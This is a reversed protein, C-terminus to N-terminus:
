RARGARGELQDRRVEFEACWSPRDDGIARSPPRCAASTRRAKSRAVISSKVETLGLVQLDCFAVLHHDAEGVALFDRQEGVDAQVDVERRVRRLLLARGPVRGRAREAVAEASARQELLRQRVAAVARLVVLPQLEEAVAHEAAGDGVLEVRAERDARLCSVRRRALRTRSSASASTPARARAARAAARRPSRVGTCATSGPRRARPATRRRTGRRRSRPPARAHPAPTRRRARRARGPAPRRLVGLGLQLFAAPARGAAARTGRRRSARRPAGASTRPRIRPQRARAQLAVPLPVDRWRASCCAACAISSFSPWAHARVAAAGDADGAPRVGALRAQQVAQHALLQRDDRGPRLGGAVQM